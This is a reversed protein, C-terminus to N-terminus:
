SSSISLDVWNINEVAALSVGVRLMQAGGRRGGEGGQHGEGMWALSVGGGERLM